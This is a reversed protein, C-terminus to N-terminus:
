LLCNAFLFQNLFRVLAAAKDLLDLFVCVYIRVLLFQVRIMLVPIKTANTQKQFSTFNKINVDIM